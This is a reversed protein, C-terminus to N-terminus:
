VDTGESIMTARPSPDASTGSAMRVTFTDTSKPVFFSPVFTKATRAPLGTVCVVELDPAIM